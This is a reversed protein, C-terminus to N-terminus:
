AGGIALASSLRRTSLDDAVRRQGLHAAELTPCWPSRSKAARVVPQVRQQTALGRIKPGPVKLPQSAPREVTAESGNAVRETAVHEIHAAAGLCM